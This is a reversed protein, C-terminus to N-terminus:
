EDEDEDVVPVPEAFTTPDEALRNQLAVLLRQRQTADLEEMVWQEARGFTPTFNLPPIGDPLVIQENTPAGHGFIDKLQVHRTEVGNANDRDWEPFDQWCNPNTATKTAWKKYSHSKWPWLYPRVVEHNTFGTLYWNNVLEDLRDALPQATTVGTNGYCIKGDKYVNPMVAPIVWQDLSTIRERAFYIRQSDLKWNAGDPREVATSMGFYFVTYPFALRPPLDEIHVDFDLTRVGPDLTVLIELRKNTPDSEDYMASRVPNRPLIPLMVPVRNEIFPMADALAAEWLVDRNVARILGGEIELTQPL